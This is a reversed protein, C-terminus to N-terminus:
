ILDLFLQKLKNITKYKFKLIQNPRDLYVSLDVISIVLIGLQIPNSEFFLLRFVFYFLPKFWGNTKM